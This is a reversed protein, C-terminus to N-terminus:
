TESGSCYSRRKGAIAALRSVGFFRALEDIAPELIDLFEGGTRLLSQIVDFAKKLFMQRPMMIRPTLANAQWEMWKVTETGYFHIQGFTTGEASIRREHIELGM